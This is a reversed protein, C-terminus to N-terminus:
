VEISYGGHVRRGYWPSGSGWMIECDRYMQSRTRAYDPCEGGVIEGTTKDMLVWVMNNDQRGNGPYKIAKLTHRKQM